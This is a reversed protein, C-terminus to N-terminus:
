CYDLELTACKDEWPKDAILESEMERKETESYRIVKGNKDIRKVGKNMVHASLNVKHPDSTETSGASGCSQATANHPLAVLRGAREREEREVENIVRRRNERAEANKIAADGMDEAVARIANRSNADGFLKELEKLMQNETL